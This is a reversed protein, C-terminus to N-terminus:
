ILLFLFYPFFIKIPLLLQILLFSVTCLNHVHSSCFELMNIPSYASHLSVVFDTVTKATTFGWIRLWDFLSNVFIGLLQDPSSTADEFTRTNRERWVTWMLCLPTLNWIHLHHKGFWNRWGFLLDVVRRPLVWHIHFSNSVFSWLVEVASCHLLLHDVTEGDCRV